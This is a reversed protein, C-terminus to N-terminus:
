VSDYLSLKACAWRYKFRPKLGLDRNDFSAREFLRGRLEEFLLPGNEGGTFLRGFTQCLSTLLLRVALCLSLFM